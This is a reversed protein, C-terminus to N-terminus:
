VRGRYISFGDRGHPCSYNPDHEYLAHQIYELTTDSVSKIPLLHAGSVIAAQKGSESDELILTNKGRCGAMNMINNFIEPDPKAHLVDDSTVVFSFFDRIGLADIIAEVNDRRSNSGIALCPIQIELQRLMDIQKLDPKLYSFKDSVIDQKDKDIKELIINSIGFTNQLKRLKSKTTTGDPYVVSKIEDASLATNKSISYILSEYHINETDALVGDLDFIILDIM